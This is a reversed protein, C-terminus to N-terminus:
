KLIDMIETMSATAVGIVSDGAGYYMLITDGRVVAGCPFVVHPVVGSMEYSEKPEFIPATTRALIMTPDKLDLLIAGVRYTKNSSIGHYFLLWGKKTKIPPNSVGVKAGDWMGHRPGLIEICKTIPHKFELSEVFDACINTGIRHFIMYKGGITEPMICSDKDDIYDPSIAEPKSWKDFKRNIFDKTDISIVAVRPVTGNYGTYNIYLRGKIETIRPDEVGFNSDENARTEFAAHGEYIPKDLREDINFGDKTIALGFSSVNKDSVARYILYIKGDLEIAAPNITGGAEWAFGHRPSIIPNKDSRTMCLNDETMAKLFHSISVTALAVYTDSVGYYIQLTDGDLAAGSPFVINRVMGIKEYYTEPVLITSKTRGTIKKPNEFDLLIAEIGFVTDPKDYNHIHSYLVLWGKDTKLPASGLEVHESEERKLPFKHSNLNAYWKNWFEESWMDEPKDFEVICIDAPKRDTNVTLLGVLKGNIREPFLAMAKANFPTVLHKAEIKKLDKSLAVAVKINDASFPFGSLATYFIYYTDDIKTVRPDECGYQDFDTDNAILVHRDSYTLGDKSSACGVVSTRLNQLLPDPEGMARYVLYKKKGFIAPSGNFSAASEWSNERLPSLIPNNEYRKVTFM